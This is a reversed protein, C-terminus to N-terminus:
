KQLEEKEVVLIRQKREEQEARATLVVRELSSRHLDQTLVAVQTRLSEIEKRTDDTAGLNMVAFPGLASASQISREKPGDGQSTWLIVGETRKTRRRMVVKSKTHFSYNGVSVITNDEEVESTILLDSKSVSGM